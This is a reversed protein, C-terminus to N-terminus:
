DYVTSAAGELRARLKDNLQVGHFMKASIRDRAEVSKSLTEGSIGLEPYKAGLEFLKEQANMMRDFDGERMAVYYQKLLSKEKKTIAGERQKIYANEDYQKMLDAPAFGLVQMMANYGNIDGMVPDGRLTNAGENAYRGGKLINKIAAPLLAEIGRYFEGEAVLKMGKEANLVISYPAGLVGELFTTVASADARDGKNERFILDTWGVRDAISLNTFYNIPGKFAFEGLYRRMLADFDEDDDDQFMNYAMEAVWYLPIGKAGAFLAAMGYIGALQRRAARVGEKQEPTANPPLPLSRRMTDFLMYYMSFAFRKFVMLIKGIDSQGLSPGALTSGAGHAYEVMRIAERIAAAEREQPSLNSNKLRQMELDFAAVATVERNMREAHHFMFTGVLTTIRQLKNAGGYGSANQNESNIADRATSTTLLGHGKLAEILGKYQPAKGNSVLNEVSYMARQTSTGGTLEQVQRRFSSSMYLKRANNLARTTNAFGYRGGMQPLAVMPTQLVNVLASSINGALNFYFAGTSAWQAYNSLNPDMAFDYRKVFDDLMMKADASDEGRLKGQEEEMEAIVRKMQQGYRMRAIQRATNSTVRDFVYAANDDIYGAVGSRKQRSKLISTEPMAQVVLQILRNIDDEGAGADKMIKMISSLMTGDPVNRYSIQEARSYEEINAAGQGEVERRAAAREVQTAFLRRVPQGNMDYALWYQGERFLPAYHDIRLAALEQMIKDYASLAKERDDVAGELNGKLSKEFEKDLTKFTAFYERYLKQEDPTLKNFRANLAKYEEFKGTNEYMSRSENYPRIDPITSDNILKSFETYRAGGTARFDTLRQHLPQMAELLKEQYGGMENALDSLRTSLDGFYKTGVQGMASMNLTKYFLGRAPLTLQELTSWVKTRREPTMAPIKSLTKDTAKYASLAFNPVGLSQAYLSDGNRTEPPPSIIENLMRDLKDYANEYKPQMGLLQRVANVFREWGTFKQGNPKFTKLHDRFESNSWAEATFEQIDQAGYAGELSSKLQNFLTTIQRTVPHSPNALVHSMAAHAAEHLIEYESAGERLYITNTNPDYRSRDAAYVVKVNGVVRMLLTAIKSAIESSASDSLGELAGVLDGRALQHLIAPHASTQLAALDEDAGFGSTDTDAIDDLDSYLDEKALERALRQLNTKRKAALTKTGKAEEVEELTPAYDGAEKAAAAEERVQQQTRDKIRDRIKQRKQIKSTRDREKQYLAIQKDLYAVAEPSLNARAWAEANKAHVGGQGKFFGAEAETGFLPEPTAAMKGKETASPMKMKANRYATPQNVVDNAISDLALEPVVKGFYAKADKAQQDLKAGRAGLKQKVTELDTPFSPRGGVGRAAPAEQGQAEAQVAQPAQTGSTPEGTTKPRSDPYKTDLWGDAWQQHEPTGKKHPNTNLGWNSKADAVGQEYANVPAPQQEARGALQEATTGAPVVGSPKTQGSTKTATGASPKGSVSPGAGGTQGVTEAVDRDGFAFARTQQQQKQKTASIPEIQMEARAAAVEKPDFTSIIDDYAVPDINGTYGPDELTQIFRRRGEVSGLDIGLLKLGMKSREPIKLTQLTDPTVPDTPAQAAGVDGFAFSRMGMQQGIRQQELGPRFMGGTGPTPEAKAFASEEAKKADEEAQKARAKEAEAQAKKIQAELDAYAQSGPRQEDMRAQLAQLEVQRQNFDPLAAFTKTLESERQKRANELAIDYEAQKEPTLTGAQREAEMQQQLAAEAEKGARYEGRELLGRRVGGVTGFAGGGIAGKVFAEKYQQINEPDFVGKASGAVEAAAASIAEQVSETLGEAAASKVAEKGIAKWVKPAAGSQKAVNEVMKLRGYAGFKDLLQGPVISDLVSSIGGALAAVGPELKNTEQYINEFVEPANQAFSGFYVGGYMARRGATEAAKEVTALGARSVPGAAMASRLAAQGALRSGVAGAGVGPILSTLATPGLEGLTEAGFQLAEYPSSVETYSKFQTPYEKELEARSTAAEEMQRKAYDEFGLASAGMAPLVDGLAIGTEGLGRMFGRKLLTGIGVEPKPLKFDYKQQLQELQAQFQEPTLDDRFKVPGLKPLNIIM